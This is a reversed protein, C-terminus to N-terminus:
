QGPTPTVIEFEGGLEQYGGGEPLTGIPIQQNPQNPGVYFGGGDNRAQTVGIVTGAIALVAVIVLAVLTRRIKM